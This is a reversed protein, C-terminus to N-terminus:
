FQSKQNKLYLMIMNKGSRFVQQLLKQNRTRYNSTNSRTNKKKVLSYSQKTKKPTPNSNWNADIAYYNIMLIIM